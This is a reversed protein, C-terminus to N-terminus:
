AKQRSTPSVKQSSSLNTAPVASKAKAESSKTPKMYNPMKDMSPISSSGTKMATGTKTKLDANNMQTNKLQWEKDFQTGKSDPKALRGTIPQAMTASTKDQNTSKGATPLKSPDMRSPEKKSFGQLANKMQSSDNNGNLQNVM